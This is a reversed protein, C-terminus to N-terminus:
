PIWRAKRVVDLEWGSIGTEGFDISCNENEDFFVFGNVHQLPGNLCEVGINVTVPVTNVYEFFVFGCASCIPNTNALEVAYYWGAPVTFSYFGDANTTAQYQPVGFVWNLEDAAIVPCNPIGLEGPDQQCNGNVDDYVVGSITVMTATVAEMLFTGANNILPATPLVTPAAPTCPQWEFNPPTPVVEYSGTDVEIEFNGLNDTKAFNRVPGNAWVTWGEFGPEGNQFNCDANLDEVINGTIKNQFVAGDQALHFLHCGRAMMIINGNNLEKVALGEGAGYNREWQVDGQADLKTLRTVRVGFGSWGTVLYGGDQTQALGQGADNNNTGFHKLFEQDGNADMKLVFYDSAGNNYDFGTVAFGGDTTATLQRGVLNANGVFAKNWQLVGNGDVKRAFLFDSATNNDNVLFVAGGDATATLGRMGNANNRWLENGDADTKM